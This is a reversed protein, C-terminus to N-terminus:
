APMGCGARRMSANRASGSSSRARSGGAELSRHVPDACRHVSCTRRLTFDCRLLGGARRHADELAVQRDPHEQADDDADREALHERARELGDAAHLHRLDVQRDPRSMQTIIMGISSFTSKPASCSTRCCKRPMPTVSNTLQTTLGNEIASSAQSNMRWRNAGPQRGLLDVAVDGPQDQEGGRGAGGHHEHPAPQGFPSGINVSVWTASFSVMMTNAKAGITASSSPMDAIVTGHSM